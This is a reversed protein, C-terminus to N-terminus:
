DWWHQVFRFMKGLYEADQKAMYGRHKALRTKEFDSLALWSKREYGANVFYDEDRLRKSLESVITLKRATKPASVTIGRDRHCIAMQRTSIRIFNLLGVYDWDRFHWVAQGFLWFNRVGYYLDYWYGCWYYKFRRWLCLLVPPDKFLEDIGYSM